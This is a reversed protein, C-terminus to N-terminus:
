TSLENIKQPMTIRKSIKPNIRTGHDTSFLMDCVVVIIIM